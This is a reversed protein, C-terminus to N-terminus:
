VLEATCLRFHQGGFDKSADWGKMPPDESLHWVTLYKLGNM